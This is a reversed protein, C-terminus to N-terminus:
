SQSNVLRGSQGLGPQKFGAAITDVLKGHADIDPHISVTSPVLDPAVAQGQEVSKVFEDFLQNVLSTKPPCLDRIDEWFKLQGEALKIM